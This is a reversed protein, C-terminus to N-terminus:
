GRNESSVLAITVLQSSASLDIGSGGVFPTQAVFYVNKGTSDGLSTLSSLRNVLISSKAIKSKLGLVTGEDLVLLTRENKAAYEDFEEFCKKLWKCVVEPEETECKYRKIEDAIGEIYGREKPDNKPDVYFIKMNPHKQKIARLANAILMGKGSGAIGLIFSNSVRDSMSSIIDLQNEEQPNYEETQSITQPAPGFLKNALKTLPPEGSSSSSGGSPLLNVNVPAQTSDEFYDMACDSFQLGEGLAWQMENIIADHGVQNLYRKFNVGELVHAVCGVEVVAKLNDQTAKAKSHAKRL